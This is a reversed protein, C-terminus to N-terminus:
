IRTPINSKSGKLMLTVIFSIMHLYYKQFYLMEQFLNEFSSVFMLINYKWDWIELIM